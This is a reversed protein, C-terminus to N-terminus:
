DSKIINIQSNIYKDFNVEENRYLKVISAIYEIQEETLDRHARDIQRFIHKIDLFLITDKRLTNIKQKDFFWLTCPLTVNFFMNPWVSVMVDVINNQILNKRIEAESSRADSASNAMVFGARWNSNLCSAFIQIWLYNWNDNSPLWYPYRKDDKIKEKDIRSMNFPPNAMVFDFKGISDHHDIQHTLWEKIDWNLGHLALNMKAIKITDATKEQWYIAVNSTSKHNQKIFDASQVFMWWSGCAPDLIIWM